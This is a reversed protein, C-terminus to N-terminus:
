ITVISFQFSGRFNMNRNGFPMAPRYHTLVLSDQVCPFYDLHMNFPLYSPRVSVLRVCKMHPLTYIAMDFIDLIM